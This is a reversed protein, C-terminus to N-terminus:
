GKKLRRRRVLLSCAGAFGVTLFTAPEPVATVLAAVSGSDSKAVFDMFFTSNQGSTSRLIISDISTVGNELTANGGISTVAQWSAPADLDWEYLHWAGDNIVNIPVGQSMETTAATPGDLAITATWTALNTVPSLLYFGIWGDVGASLSFAPNTGGPSGSGALFRVRTTAAATTVNLVLRESGAGELRPNPTVVRDATSTAAINANSGSFTPAQNFRGEGVNFDEFIIAARLETAVFFSLLIFCALMTLRIM